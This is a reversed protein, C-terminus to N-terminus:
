ASNRENPFDKLCCRGAPNREVCACHGERTQQEIYARAHNEGMAQESLIDSYRLGFCYCLLRNDADSKLGIDERMQGQTYVLGTNSFYVAECDHNRCFFFEADPLTRNVPYVLQHELTLQKVSHGQESCYPCPATHKSVNCCDSM